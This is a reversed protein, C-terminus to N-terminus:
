IPIPVKSAIAAIKGTAGSLKVIGVLLLVGGIIVKLGRLVLNTGSIGTIKALYAFVNPPTIPKTETSQASATQSNSKTTADSASFYPGKLGNSIYQDFQGKTTAEVVIYHQQAKTVTDTTTGLPMVTPAGVFWAPLPPNSNPASAAAASSDYGPTGSARVAEAESNSLLYTHGNYGFWNGAGANVLSTLPAGSPTPYFPM